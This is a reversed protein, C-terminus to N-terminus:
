LSGHSCMRASMTYQASAGVGSAPFLNCALPPDDVFLSPLLPLPAPPLFFPEELSFSLFGLLCTLRDDGMAEDGIGAALRSGQRFRVVCFM